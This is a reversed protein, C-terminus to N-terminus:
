SKVSLIHLSVTRVLSLESLKTRKLSSDAALSASVFGSVIAAELSVSSAGDLSM